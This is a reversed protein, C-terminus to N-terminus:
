FFKVLWNYISDPIELSAFKEFLTHHRVTDVNFM